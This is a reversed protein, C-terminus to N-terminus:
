RSLRAAERFALMASTHAARLSGLKQLGAYAAIERSTGGRKPIGAVVIPKVIQALDRDINAVGRSIAFTRGWPTFVAAVSESDGHEALGALRHIFQGGTADGVATRVSDRGLLERDSGALKPLAAETLQAKLGDVAQQFRRSAESARAEADQTAEEQLRALGSVPILDRRADLDGLDKAAVDGASLVDAVAAHADAALDRAEVPLNSDKEIGGAETLLNAAVGRQTPNPM